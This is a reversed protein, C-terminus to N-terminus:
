LTHRLDRFGFGAIAAEGRTLAMIKFREGMEGPMLLKKADGVMQVGAGTDASRMADLEVDLGADLLFHAQTGYGAVQLGAAEGAQAAATFDVWATIDQLGPYVFPNDHARHRYHCMLTGSRRERHYYERRSMGYDGLLLLGADLAAALSAIWGPLRLSVESRYGDTLVSGGRTIATVANRLEASPERPAWTFSEGCEVVGDALVRGDCMMFRSVPLADAVENALVIGHQPAGPLEELWSVSSLHEPALRALTARQRERLDASVELINYRVGPLGGRAFSTLLGAALVGSGAGVELIVGDPHQWLWPLCARALCRAFLPSVEPATVFDGAPGFKTSGASYYGLGPSYLVLDMYEAFDLWGGAARMRERVREAVRRSHALAEATPEPIEFPNRM